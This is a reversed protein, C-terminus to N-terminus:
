LLKVGIALFGYEEQKEPSYYADMDHPSAKEGAEYGCSSLPLARLLDEYTAFKQLSEVIVRMKKGSERETFEITDGVKVARRKEDNLRIEFTKEGAEIKAFPAPCLTMAHVRRRRLIDGSQLSLPCKFSYRAQVLKADPCLAGEGDRLDEVPIRRGFNDDPSLVELVDGEHFRGRMEVEARGQGCGSVIAVFDCTGSIQSGDSSVTDTNKGFAYATTYQRHTLTELEEGLSESWGMDLIRRYSNVVTALYYESKMRGEIKFSCVGAAALEELHRAMNLDKSNLLYAGREDEELSLAEGGKIRRLEYADRCPQACAGRNSSRGELYDSLYCRGSYSICMAGHVFAELELEPLAEHIRAIEEISVERGLVVRRAGLESWMAAAELNQTNAQTSIHIPLSPAARRALRFVGLDSVLVGDAGAEELFKLHREIAPFDANKAFINVAAYVRKGRVHAYAIGESLEGDTFNDAYSRLSFDKGGLYVADAGFRLALKLKKLNGAPALLESKM